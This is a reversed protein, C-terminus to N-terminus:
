RIRWIALNFVEGFKGAIYYETHTHTFSLCHSLSHTCTYTHVNCCPAKGCPAQVLHSYYLPSQWLIIAEDGPWEWKEINCVSFMAVNFVHSLALQWAYVNYMYDVTVM